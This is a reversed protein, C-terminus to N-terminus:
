FLSVVWVVVLFDGEYSNYNPRQKTTPGFLMHGWLNEVIMM